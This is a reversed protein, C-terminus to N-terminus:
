LIRLPFRFARHLHRLPSADPRDDGGRCACRHRRTVSESVSVGTPLPSYPITVVGELVLAADSVTGAGVNTTLDVVANAPVVIRLAGAAESVSIQYGTTPFRVASLDLTGVGFEGRYHHIVQALSTLQWRDDGNGGALPVGTSELFGLAAGVVVIIASLGALLTVAFFRRLTLRRAQTKLAVISLGVLFVIWAVAMGPALLGFPRTLSFALIVLVVLAALIAVIVRRVRRPNM